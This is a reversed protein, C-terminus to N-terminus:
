FHMFMIIIYICIHVEVYLKREIESLSNWADRAKNKDNALKKNGGAALTCIYLKFATLLKGHEALASSPM